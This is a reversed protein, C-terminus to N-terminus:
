EYAGGLLANRNARAQEKEEETSRTSEIIKQYIDAAQQRDGLSVRLRALLFLGRSNEPYRQLLREIREEALVLDDTEFLALVAAGYLADEYTPDLEVAREYYYMTRSVGRERDGPSAMTKALFGQCVGARYFLVPNAPYIELAKGLAELAPGYMEKDMLDTALIRYYIGLQGTDQVRRAIEDDYRKLAAKLETIRERDVSEGAYDSSETEILDQVMGGEGARCSALLLFLVVMISTMLKMMVGQRVYM